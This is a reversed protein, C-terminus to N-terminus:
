KGINKIHNIAITRAKSRTSQPINIFFNDSVVPGIFLVVPYYYGNEKHTRPYYTVGAITFQKLTM